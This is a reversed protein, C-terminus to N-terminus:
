KKQDQMKQPLGTQGGEGTPQLPGPGGPNMQIPPGPDNKRENGGGSGCGIALVTVALMLVGRRMAFAEPHFPDAPNGIRAL